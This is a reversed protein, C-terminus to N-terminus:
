SGEETALLTIPREQADIPAFLVVVSRPEARYTDGAVAPAEDWEVIDDPSDLFTDIWRRWQDSAGHAIAPLEFDLPEWYATPPHRSVGDTEWPIEVHVCHQAFRRELGARVTERRAV